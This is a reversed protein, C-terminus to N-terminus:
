ESIPLLPDLRKATSVDPPVAWGSLGPSVLRVLWGSPAILFAFGIALASHPMALVPAIWEGLRRSWPRHQVCAALGIALAVSLVTSLWGSVLTVLISAQLGPQEFLRRWEHLGWQTAGIAPLYGFAPLVTGLLGAAIPLAFVGVTLAPAARLLTTGLATRLVDHRLGQPPHLTVSGHATAM